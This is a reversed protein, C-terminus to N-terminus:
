LRTVEVLCDYFTAARGLDTLAQSTVANANDGDGRSSKGGSRRRSSSVRARATPSGRAHRSAAAITSSACPRRRDRHRARRCGGSQHRADAGKEASPVGAPQRVVFQPLQAGAALHVRASLARRAGPQERGVRAAPRVRAASRPGARRASASYFECKGSPTPFNGSRSRRTPRRCARAASLGEGQAHGLRHRGRAPRTPEFRRARSTTTATASARSPRLGDARALLRFVETNPMRRASRRSRRITRSRTCTATRATSTSRSSSRRRRCCSTPTTPPTPRSSRTSSASCTRARSARPSRRRNPRWPSPTRTTSTSRASRRIAARRHLADGIASM